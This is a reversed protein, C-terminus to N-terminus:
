EDVHVCFLCPAHWTDTFNHKYEDCPARLATNMEGGPESRDKIEFKSQCTPCCKTEM